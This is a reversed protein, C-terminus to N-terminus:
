VSPRRRLSLGFDRWVTLPVPPAGKPWRGRLGASTMYRLRTAAVDLGYHLVQLTATRRRRWAARREAPVNKAPGLNLWSDQYIVAEIMAWLRADMGKCIQDIIRICDLQFGTIDGASSSGRDVRELKPSRVSQGRAGGIVDRLRLAVQFRLPGMGSEDAESELDGESVLFWIPSSQVDLIAISDSMDVFLLDRRVTQATPLDPAPMALVRALQGYMRNREREQAPERGYFAAMPLVGRPRAEAPGRKRQREGM